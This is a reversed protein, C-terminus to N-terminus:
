DLDRLFLFQGDDGTEAPPIVQGPTSEKLSNVFALNSVHQGDIPRVEGTGDFRHRGGASTRFSNRVEFPHYAIPVVESKQRSVAQDFLGNVRALMWPMCVVVPGFDQVRITMPKAAGTPKKQDGDGQAHGVAPSGSYAIGGLASTLLVVVLLVLKRSTM